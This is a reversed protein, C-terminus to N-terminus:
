ASIGDDKLCKDNNSPVALAAVCEDDLQLCLRVATAVYAQAHPTRADFDEVGEAVGRAKARPILTSAGTKCTPSSWRRHSARGYVSQCHSDPPGPLQLRSLWPHERPLYLKMTRGTTIHAHPRVLKLRWHVLLTARWDTRVVCTRLSYKRNWLVFLGCPPPARCPM